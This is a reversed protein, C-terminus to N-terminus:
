RHHHFHLRHPFRVVVVVVVLRDVDGILRVRLILEQDQGAVVLYVLQRLRLLHTVQRQQGLLPSPVLLPIDQTTM